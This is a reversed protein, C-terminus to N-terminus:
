SVSLRMFVMIGVKERMNFQPILSLTVPLRLRHWNLLFIFADRWTRRDLFFIPSMICSFFLSFGLKNQPGLNQAYDVAQCLSSIQDWHIVYQM